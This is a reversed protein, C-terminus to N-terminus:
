EGGTPEPPAMYAPAGGVWTQVVRTDSLGKPHRERPDRDLVVFDAPAGVRLTGAGPVGLARGGVETYARLMTDLDLAEVPNLETGPVGDADKRTIAIEIARWPNLTSVSWDSGAVLTAGARQLAGFPYLRSAREEGVRPLTLKDIWEDRVAWYAQLNPWAGLRAFAPLDAPDVAQIHAVLVPRSSKRPGLAELAVLLQHVAGDGIAHVHVQLGLKDATRLIRLLEADSFLLEGNKGDTYPARMAATGSEMVGDLYLKIADVVLRKGGFRKRLAAVRRVGAPGEGPAVEVAAHVAIPLAGREDLARYARLTARSANADVVRTVGHALFDLLATRAAAELTDADPEPVHAWVADAATERLVGTPRGQADREVRGGAPDPADLLRAKRLAATNAFASHGDVSALLVPRDLALRDLAALPAAGDLLTPSWGAGLVWPAEPNASAWSAVASVLGAEDVVDTLSAHGLEVGGEAPHAHADIFGPLVLAGDVHMVRTSETLCPLSRAVRLDGAFQIRGEGIVVAEVEPLAPDMTLFPAGYVILEAICAAPLSMAKSPLGGAAMATTGAAEGGGSAGGAGPGRRHGSTPPPQAAAGRQPAVGTRGSTPRAAAGSVDVVKVTFDLDEGSAPLTGSVLGDPTL